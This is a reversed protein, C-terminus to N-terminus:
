VHACMRGQGRGWQMIPTLNKSHDPRREVQVGRDSGSRRDRTRRCHWRRGQTRWGLSGEAWPFGSEQGWLELSRRVGAPALAQDKFGIVCMKRDLCPWQSGPGPTFSNVARCVRGSGHADRRGGGPERCLESPQGPPRPVREAVARGEARGLAVPPLEVTLPFHAHAHAHCPTHLAM